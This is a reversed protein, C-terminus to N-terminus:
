AHTWEGEGLHRRLESLAKHLRTKVTGDPIELIRAIETLTYGEFYMLVVIRRYKPELGTIAAQLDPDAGQDWVVADYDALENGARIRRKREDACYNLLIRTIWTLFYEPEKLKGIKMYARCVTEQVAELADPENRLYAFAIRYLREKCSDALRAFADDDGRRAKAAWETM